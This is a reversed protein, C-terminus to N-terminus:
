PSLCIRAGKTSFSGASAASSVLRGLGEPVGSSRLAKSWSAGVVRDRGGDVVEGVNGVMERRCEPHAAPQNRKVGDSRATWKGCVTSSARLHVDGGPM